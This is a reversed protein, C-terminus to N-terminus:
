KKNNKINFVKKTTTGFISLAGTKELGESLNKSFKKIEKVAEKKKEPNNNSMKIQTAVQNHNPKFDLQLLGFLGLGIIIAATAAYYLRFNRGKDNLRVPLPNTVNQATTFYTFMPRYMEHAEKVKDSSFYHRLAKEEALTTLGEFYKNLINDINKYDM